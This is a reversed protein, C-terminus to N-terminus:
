GIFQWFKGPTKGGMWWCPEARYRSPPKCVGLQIEWARGERERHAWILRSGSSISTTQKFRNCDVVPQITMQKVQLLKELTKM